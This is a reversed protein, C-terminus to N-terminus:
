GKESFERYFSLDRRASSPFARPLEHNHATSNYNRKSSPQALLIQRSAPRFAGGDAGCATEGEQKTQQTGWACPLCAMRQGCSWSQKGSNQSLTKRAVLVSCVWRRMAEGHRRLVLPQVVQSPAQPAHRQGRPARERWAKLLPFRPPPSSSSETESRRDRRRHSQQAQQPPRTGGRPSSLLLPPGTHSGPPRGKGRSETNEAGLRLLLMLACLTKAL